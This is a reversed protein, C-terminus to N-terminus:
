AEPDAWVLTVAQNGAFPDFSVLLGKGPPIIIQAFRPWVWPSNQVSLTYRGITKDSAPAAVLQAEFTARGKPGGIRLNAPENGATLAPDANLTAITLLTTVGSSLVLDTLVLGRGGQGANFLVFQAGVVATGVLSQGVSFMRDKWAVQALGPLFDWQPDM